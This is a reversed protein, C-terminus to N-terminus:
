FISRLRGSKKNILIIDILNDQEDLVEIIFFRKREEIEGIKLNTDGYYSKIIDIAEEKSNVLFPKGYRGKKKDFKFGGYPPNNTVDIRKEGKTQGYLMSVSFFLILIIKILCNMIM